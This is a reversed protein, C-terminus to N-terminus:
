GEMEIVLLLETGQECEQTKESIVVGLRSAQHRIARRESAALLEELAQEVTAVQGVLSGSLRQSEKTKLMELKRQVAEKAGKAARQTARKEDYAPDYVMRKGRETATVQSRETLAVQATRQEVDIIADAEGLTLRFRGEEVAAGRAQLEKKLARGFVHDSVVKPFGLTRVMRDEAVVTETLSENVSVQMRRSM